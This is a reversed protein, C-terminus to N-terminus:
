PTDQKLPVWGSLLLGLGALLGFGFLISQWVLAEAIALTGPVAFPVLLAALAVERVGLGGLSVPLLLEKRKIGAIKAIAYPENTEELVGTLLCNEPMPQPALKPFICSSGLFLLRQVSAQRAANIVNAVPNCQIKTVFLLTRGTDPCLTNGNRPVWTKVGEPRAEM